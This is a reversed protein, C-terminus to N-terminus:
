LVADLDVADASADAQRLRGGLEPVLLDDLKALPQADRSLQTGGVHADEAAVLGFARRCLLRDAERHLRQLAAGLEGARAAEDDAEFVIAPEGVVRLLRDRDNRADVRRPGAH